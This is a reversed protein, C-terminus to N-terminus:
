IIKHKHNMSLIKFSKIKHFKPYHKKLNQNQNSKWKIIKTKKKIIKNKIM